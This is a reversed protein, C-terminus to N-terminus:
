CKLSLTSLPASSEPSGLALSPLAGTGFLPGREIYAMSPSAVRIRCLGAIRVGARHDYVQRWRITPGGDDYVPTLNLNLAGAGAMM